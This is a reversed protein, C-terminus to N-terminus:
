NQSLETDLIGVSRKQKTGAWCSCFGVCKASWNKDTTYWTSNMTQILDTSSTNLSFKEMSENTVSTLPIYIQSKLKQNYRCYHAEYLIIRHKLVMTRRAHTMWAVVIFWCALFILIFIDFFLFWHSFDFGTEKYCPFIYKM